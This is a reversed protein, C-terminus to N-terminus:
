ATNLFDKFAYVKSGSATSTVPSEKKAIRVAYTTIVLKGQSNRQVTARMDVKRENIKFLDIETQIILRRKKFFKVIELLVDDFSFVIKAQVNIRATSIKYIGYPGKQVRMVSRGNSGIRAKIFVTKHKSLLTELENKSYLATYPLHPKVDSFKSLKEYLYYKDFFSQANIKKLGKIKDFQWRVYNSIQLYHDTRSGGRDYLVDPLPLQKSEWQSKVPNLITGKVRNNIFDVDDICFFYLICQAIENAKVFQDMKESTIQNKTRNILRRSVFVGIVPGLNLKGNSIHANCKLGDFLGLDKILTKSIEISNNSRNIIPQLRYEKCGVSLILPKDRVTKFTENLLMRPISIKYKSDHNGCSEKIVVSISKIISVDKGNKLQIFYIYLLIHCLFLNTIHKAVRM